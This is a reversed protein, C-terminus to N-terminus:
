ADHLSRIVRFMQLLEPWCVPSQVDLESVPVKSDPGTDISAAVSTTRKCTAVPDRRIRSTGDKRILLLNSTTPSPRAKPVKREMSLETTNTFVASPEIAQISGLANVKMAASARKPTTRLWRPPIEAGRLSLTATTTPDSMPKAKSTMLQIRTGRSVIRAPPDTSMYKKSASALPTLSNPAESLM